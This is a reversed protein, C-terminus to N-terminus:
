HTKPAPPLDRVLFSQLRRGGLVQRTLREHDYIDGTMTAQLQVAARLKRRLSSHDFKVDNVKYQRDRTGALFATRWPNLKDRCRTLVTDVTRTPAGAVGERSKKLSVASGAELFHKGRTRQSSDISDRTNLAAASGEGINEGILAGAVGEGIPQKRFSLLLAVKGTLQCALLTSLAKVFLRIM